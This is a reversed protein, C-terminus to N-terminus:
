LLFESKDFALSGEFKVVFDIKKDGNADAYVYTQGDKIDTRLEGAKGTFADTGIFKFAQNGGLTTNADIARLDIIDGNAGLTYDVVTDMASKTSDSLKKFVFTDGGAGGQLTDAGMGGNIFDWGDGGDITDNGNGGRLSDNGGNGRIVDNGDQGDITDACKTGNILDNGSLMLSKLGDNDGDMVLKYFSSAGIGFAPGKPPLESSGDRFIFSMSVDGDKVVTLGSLNGALVDVVQKGERVPDLVISGDEGRYILKSGSVFARDDVSNYGGFGSGNFSYSDYGRLFDFILKDFNVGHVNDGFSIITM